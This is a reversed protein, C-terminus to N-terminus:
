FMEIIAMVINHQYLYETFPNQNIYTIMQQSFGSVSTLSVLYMLIWVYLFGQVAGAAFGLFGNIGSVMPADGVASVINGVFWVVLQAAVFAILVAIGRIMFDLLKQSVAQSATRILDNGQGEQMEQANEQGAANEQAAANEKAAGQQTADAETRPLIEEVAARLTDPLGELLENWVKEQGDKANKSLEELKENVSQEVKQQMTEPLSTRERIYHDIYPSAWIVFVLICVWSILGYIMGLLGKRWGNIASFILILLVIIFVINM